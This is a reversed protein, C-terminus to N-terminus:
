SEIKKEKPTTSPTYGRRSAELRRRREKAEPDSDYDESMLKRILLDMASPAPDIIEGSFQTTKMAMRAKAYYNRLTYMDVIRKRLYEDKPIFMIVQKVTEPKTQEDALLQEMEHGWEKKREDSIRFEDNIQTLYCVFFDVADRATMDTM